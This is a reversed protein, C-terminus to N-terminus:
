ASGGRLDMSNFTAMAKDPGDVILTEIASGAVTEAEELLERDARAVPSLVFDRVDDVPREPLIGVRVRLFEDSGCASIISKIGNHGGASGKRRIRIKGLPLAVDDYVVILDAVSGGCREFLVPLTVGSQNMFTQPLALVATQGGFRIPGSALAQGCRGRIREGLRDAMRTLVRFGV